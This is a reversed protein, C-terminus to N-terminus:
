EWPRLRAYRACWWWLRRHMWTHHEEGNIALAIHAAEHCATDRQRWAPIDREVIIHGWAPFALGLFEGEFAQFHMAKVHHCPEVELRACALTMAMRLTTLDVTRDRGMTRQVGSEGIHTPACGGIAVVAGLAMALGLTRPLDSPGNNM